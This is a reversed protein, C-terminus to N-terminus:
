EADRWRVYAKRAREKAALAERELAEYVESAKLYDIWAQDVEHVPKEKTEM